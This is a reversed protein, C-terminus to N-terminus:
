LETRVRQHVFPTKTQAHAYYWGTAAKSDNWVADTYYIQVDSSLTCHGEEHKKKLAARPKATNRMDTLLARKECHQLNLASPM